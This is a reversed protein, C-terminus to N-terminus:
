PRAAGLRASARRAQARASRMGQQRRKVAAVDAGPRGARRRAAAGVHQRGAAVQEGGVRAGHRRRGSEVEALGGGLINQAAIQLIM